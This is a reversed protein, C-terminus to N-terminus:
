DGSPGALTRQLKALDVPKAPMHHTMRDFLPFVFHTASDTMNMFEQSHRSVM